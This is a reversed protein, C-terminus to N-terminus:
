SVEMDNGSNNNQGSTMDIKETKFLWAGRDAGDKSSQGKCWKFGTPISYEDEWPCKACKLRIVNRDTTAEPSPTKLRHCDPCQISCPTDNGMPRAGPHTWKFTTIVKPEFLIVDTHAGLIQQERLILVMNIRDYIFHNLTFSMAFHHTFSPQFNPQSFCLIKNFLERLFFAKFKAKIDSTLFVCKSAIEKLDEKSEPRSSLAGCALLNLINKNKKGRKLLNNFREPFIVKM